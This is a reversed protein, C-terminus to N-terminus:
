HLEWELTPPENTNGKTEPIYKRLEFNVNCGRQAVGNQTMEYKRPTKKM